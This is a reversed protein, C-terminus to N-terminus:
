SKMSYYILIMCDVCIETFVSTCLNVTCLFICTDILSFMNVTTFVLMIQMAKQVWSGTYHIIFVFIPRVTFLSNLIDSREVDVPFGNKNLRIEYQESCCCLM